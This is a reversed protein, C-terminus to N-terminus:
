PAWFTAKSAAATPLKSIHSSHSNTATGAFSNKSQISQQYTSINTLTPQQQLACM